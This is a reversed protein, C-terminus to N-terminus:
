VLVSAGCKQLWSDEAGGYGVAESDRHQRFLDGARQALLGDIYKAVVGSAALCVPVEDNAM